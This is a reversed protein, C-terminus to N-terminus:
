EILLFDGNFLFYEIFRVGGKRAGKDVGEEESVIRRGRTTEREDNKKSIRKNRRKDGEREKM